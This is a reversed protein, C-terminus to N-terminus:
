LRVGIQLTTLMADFMDDFDTTARLDLFLKPAITTGLAIAFNLNTDDFDTPMQLQVGAGIYSLGLKAKLINTFNFSEGYISTDAFNVREYEFFGQYALAAFDVQLNVGGVFGIAGDVPAPLIPSYNLGANLGFSAQASSVFGLVAFVSVVLFKLRSTM